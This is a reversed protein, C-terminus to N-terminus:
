VDVGVSLLILDELAIGHVVKLQNLVFRLRTAKEHIKSELEQIGKETITGSINKQYNLVKVSEAIDTKLTLYENYFDQAVWSKGELLGM